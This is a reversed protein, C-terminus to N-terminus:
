LKSFVVAEREGEGLLAAQLTNDNMIRKVVLQFSKGRPETKYIFPSKETDPGM